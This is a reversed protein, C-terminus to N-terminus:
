TGGEKDSTKPTIINKLGAVVDKLEKLRYEVDTIREEHNMAWWRLSEFERIQITYRDEYVRTKHKLNEVDLKLTQLEYVEKELMRIRLELDKLQQDIRELAKIIGSEM